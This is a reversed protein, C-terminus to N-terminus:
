TTKNNAKAHEDLTKQYEIAIRTIEGERAALEEETANEAAPPPPPPAAPPNPDFVEGVKVGSHVSFGPLLYVLEEEPSQCLGPFTHLSFFLSVIYIKKIFWFSPDKM